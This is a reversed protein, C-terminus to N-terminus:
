GTDENRLVYNILCLSMKVKINAICNAAPTGSNIRWLIRIVSNSRTLIQLFSYETVKLRTSDNSFEVYTKFIKKYSWMWKTCRYM